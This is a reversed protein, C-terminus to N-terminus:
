PSVPQDLVDGVEPVHHVKRAVHEERGPDQQSGSCEVDDFYVREENSASSKM